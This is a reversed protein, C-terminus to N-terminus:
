DFIKDTLGDATIRLDVPYHVGHVLVTLHAAQCGGSAAGSTKALAVAERLGLSAGAAGGPDAAVRQLQMALSLRRLLGAM